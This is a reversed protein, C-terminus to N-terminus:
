QIRELFSELDTTDLGQLFVVKRKSKTGHRIEVPAGLAKKLLKIVERNAKGGTPPSFVYVHLMGDVVDFRSKSSSPHVIITIQLGDFVKVSAIM